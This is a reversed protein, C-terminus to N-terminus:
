GEPLADEATPCAPNKDFARRYDEFAAVVRDVGELKEGSAVKRKIGALITRYDASCLQDELEGQAKDMRQQASAAAVVKPRYQMNQWAFLGAVALALIFLGYPLAPHRYFPRSSDNGATGSGLMGSRRGGAKEVSPQQGAGPPVYALGGDDEDDSWQDTQTPTSSGGRSADIHKAAAKAFASDIATLVKDSLTIDGGLNRKGLEDVVIEVLKQDLWATEKAIAEDYESNAM